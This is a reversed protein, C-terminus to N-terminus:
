KDSVAWEHGHVLGDDHWETKVAAAAILQRLQRADVPKTNQKADGQADRANFYEM